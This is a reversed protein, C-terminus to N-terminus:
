QLGAAASAAAAHRNGARFDPGFAALGAHTGGHSRVRTASSAHPRRAGGGAAHLSGRGSNRPEPQPYSFARTALVRACPDLTEGALMPVAEAPAQVVRGGSTTSGAPTISATAALAGRIPEQHEIRCSVM